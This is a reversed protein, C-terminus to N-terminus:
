HTADQFFSGEDLRNLEEDWINIVNAAIASFYDWKSDWLDKGYGVWRSSGPQGDM